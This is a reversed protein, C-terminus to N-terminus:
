ESQDGTAGPQYPGAVVDVEEYPLLFELIGAAHPTIMYENCIIHFGTEDTYWTGDTLIDELHNRYDPFLKDTWEPQLFMEGLYEMSKIRIEDLDSAVDALSMRKGTQTDFNYAVRVADPHAGGTYTYCDEVISIMQEDVRRITYEQGLGYGTWNEALGNAREAELDSAAMSRYAEVTDEFAAQRDTFFQNILDEAEQNGPIVVRISQMKCELLLMNDTTKLQRRSFRGTEVRLGTEVAQEERIEAAATDEPRVDAGDADTEGSQTGSGPIGETETTESDPVAEQTKRGGCGSLVCCILLVGWLASVRKRRDSKKSTKMGTEMRINAKWLTNANEFM